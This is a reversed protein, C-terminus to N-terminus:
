RAPSVRAHPRIPIHKSCLVSRATFSYWGPGLGRSLSSSRAICVFRRKSRRTWGAVATSGTRFVNGYIHLRYTGIRVLAYLRPLRVESSTPASMASVQFVFQRRFQRASTPRNANVSVRLSSNLFMLREVQLIASGPPHPGHRKVRGRAPYPMPLTYWGSEMM